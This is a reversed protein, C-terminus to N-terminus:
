TYRRAWGSVIINPSKNIDGASLLVELREDVGKGATALAEGLCKFPVEVARAWEWVTAVNGM